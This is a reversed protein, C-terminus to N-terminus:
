SGLAERLQDAYWQRDGEVQPHARLWARLPEAAEPHAEVLPTIAYSSLDYFHTGYNPWRAELYLPQWLRIADAGYLANFLRGALRSTTYDLDQSRVPYHAFATIVEDLTPAGPPLAAPDLPAQRGSGVVRVLARALWALVEPEPLTDEIRSAWFSLTDAFGAGSAYLDTYATVLTARDLRDGSGIGGHSGYGGMRWGDPLPAENWVSQASAALMAGLLSEGGAIRHTVSASKRKDDLDVRGLEICVGLHRAADLYPRARALLAQRVALQKAPLKRPIEVGAVLDVLSERHALLALLSGQAGAFLTAIGTTPLETKRKADALALSFEQEDGTELDRRIVRDDAQQYALFRGALAPLALSPLDLERERPEDGERREVITWRPGRHLMVVSRDADAYLEVRAGDPARLRRRWTITLRTGSLTGRILEGSVYAILSGDHGVRLPAPVNPQGEGGALVLEPLEVGGALSAENSKTKPKPKPKDLRLPLLVAKSLPEIRLTAHELVLYHSGEPHVVVGRERFRDFRKSARLEPFAWLVSKDWLDEYSAAASADAAVSVMGGSESGTIKTDTKAQKPRTLRTLGFGDMFLLHAEDQSFAYM